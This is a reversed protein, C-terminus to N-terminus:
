KAEVMNNLHMIIEDYNMRKNGDMIYSQSGEKKIWFRKLKPLEQLYQCDFKPEERNLINVNEYGVKMDSVIDSIAQELEESPPEPNLKRTEIEALIEKSKPDVEPRSWDIQNFNDDFVKSNTKLHATEKFGLGM